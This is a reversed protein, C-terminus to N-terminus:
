SLVTFGHGFECFLLYDTQSHAGEIDDIGNGGCMKWRILDGSPLDDPGDFITKGALLRQSHSNKFQQLHMQMFKECIERTFKGPIEVLGTKLFQQGYVPNQPLDSQRRFPRGIESFGQASQGRM